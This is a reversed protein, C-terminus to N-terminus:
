YGQRLPRHNMQDQRRFIGDHGNSSSEKAISGGDRKWYAVMDAHTVRCGISDAVNCTFGL